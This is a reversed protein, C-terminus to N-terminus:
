NVIVDEQKPDDVSEIDGSESPVGEDDSAFVEVFQNNKSSAESELISDIHSDSSSQNSAKPVQQNSAKTAHLTHRKFVLSNEAGKVQSGLKLQHQKIEEGIIQDIDQSKTQMKQGSKLHRINVESNGQRTLEDSAVKLFNHVIEEDKEDASVISNDVEKSEEQEEKQKKKSKKSRNAEESKVNSVHDMYEEQLQSSKELREKERIAQQALMIKQQLASKMM